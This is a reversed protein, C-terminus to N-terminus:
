PLYEPLIPVFLKMFEQLSQFGAETQGIDAHTSFRVLAAGTQRRMVHNKMMHLRMRPYKSTIMPGSEFFYLVVENGGPQEFVIKRASITDFDTGTMDVQREGSDVIVSGKGALCGEPLHFYVRYQPYYVIAVKIQQGGPGVYDRMIINTTELIDTVDKSVPLEKGIYPGVETPLDVVMKETAVSSVTMSLVTAALATAGM